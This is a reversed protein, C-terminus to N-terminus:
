FPLNMHWIGYIPVELSSFITAEVQSAEPDFVYNFTFPRPNELGIFIQNDAVNSVKVVSQCDNETEVGMM